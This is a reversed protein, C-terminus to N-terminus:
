FLHNQLPRVVPTKSDSGAFRTSRSASTASRVASRSRMQHTGLSDSRGSRAWTWGPRRLARQCLWAYAMSLSKRPRPTGSWAHPATGKLLRSSVSFAPLGATAAPSAFAM